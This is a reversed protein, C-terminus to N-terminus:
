YKYDATYKGDRKIQYICDRFLGKEPTSILRALQNFCDAFDVGAAANGVVFPEVLSPDREPRYSLEYGILGNGRREILADIQTWPEPVGKLLARGIAELCEKQDTFKPNM